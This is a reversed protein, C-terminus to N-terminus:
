KSELPKTSADPATKGAAGYQKMLDEKSKETPQPTPGTTPTGGDQCGVTSALLLLCVASLRLFQM